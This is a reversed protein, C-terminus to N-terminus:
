TCFYLLRHFVVPYLFGIPNTVLGVSLLYAVVVLIYFFVFYRYKGISLISQSTPPSIDNFPPIDYNKKRKIAVMLVVFYWM